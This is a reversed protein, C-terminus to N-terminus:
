ARGGKTHVLEAATQDVLARRIQGLHRVILDLREVNAKTNGDLVRRLITLDEDDVSRRVLREIQELMRDYKRLVARDRETRPELAFLPDQAHADRLAQAIATVKQFTEAKGDRIARFLTDQDPPTLDGMQTAQFITLIGKGLAERYVPRLHLLKLRLTVRVTSGYGLFEALKEVTYGNDLFDQYAQAEELPTLDERQINELLALEQVTADDAEKVHAPITVLGARKAARTRREGAVLLFRHGRPTVVVPELVGRKKISAALEALPAEAFVKRPQRPNPDILDIRIETTM